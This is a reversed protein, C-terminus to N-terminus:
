CEALVKLATKYLGEIVQKVKLLQLLCSLIGTICKITAVALVLLKDAFFVKGTDVTL